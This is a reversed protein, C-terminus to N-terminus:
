RQPIKQSNPQPYFIIGKAKVKRSRVFVRKCQPVGANKRRYVSGRQFYARTINKVAIFQVIIRHNSIGPPAKKNRHLGHVPKSLNRLAFQM